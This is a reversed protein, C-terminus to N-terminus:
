PLAPSGTSALAPGPLGRRRAADRCLRDGAARDAPLPAADLVFFDGAPGAAGPPAPVLCLLSRVSARRLYGTQVLVTETAYRAFGPQRAAWAEEANELIRRDARDAQHRGAVTVQALGLAGVAAVVGIVVISVLFEVPSFGSEAPQQPFRRRM